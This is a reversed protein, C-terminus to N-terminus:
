EKDATEELEKRARVKERWMELAQNYQRCPRGEGTVLPCMTRRCFDCQSRGTVGSIGAKGAGDAGGKSGEFSAALKSMQSRLESIETAAASQASDSGMQSASDSPSIVSLPVSPTITPVIKGGREHEARVSTAAAFSAFGSEAPLGLGLYEEFFYTRFYARRAPWCGGTDRRVRQDLKMLRVSAMPIGAKTFMEMTRVLWLNLKEESAASSLVARELTLVDRDKTKNLFEIYSEFRTVDVVGGSGGLHAYQAMYEAHEQDRFARGFYLIAAALPGVCQSEQEGREKEALKAAIATTDASSLSHGLSALADVVVSATGGAADAKGGAKSGAMRAKLWGVLRIQDGDSSIGADRAYAKWEAEFSALDSADCALSLDVVSEGRSDFFSVLNSIMSTTLKYRDHTQTFLGKLAIAAASPAM